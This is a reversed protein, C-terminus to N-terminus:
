THAPRTTCIRSWTRSNPSAARSRVSPKRKRETRYEWRKSEGKRNKFTSMVHQAASARHRVENLRFKNDRGFELTNGDLDVGTMFAKLGPDLAVCKGYCEYPDPVVCEPIAVYYFGNSFLLDVESSISVLRKMNVRIDKLGALSLVVSSGKREIKAARADESITFDPSKKSVFRMKFMNINGNWLNSFASKVNTQFTRM